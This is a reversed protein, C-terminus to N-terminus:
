ICIIGEASPILPCNVLMISLSALEAPDLAEPENPEDKELPNPVTAFTPAADKPTNVAATAPPVDASAEPIV